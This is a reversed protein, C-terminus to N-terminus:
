VNVPKRFRAILPVLATAILCGCTIGIAMPQLAPDLLCGLLDSVTNGLSAGIVAGLGVQLRRPLLREIELGTFAGVILVGNDVLGFILGEM